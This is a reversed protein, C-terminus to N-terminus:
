WPRTTASSRRGRVSSRPARRRTSPTARAARHPDADAGALTRRDAARHARDCRPAGHGAAPRGARAGAAGAGATATRRRRAVRIRDHVETLRTTSRGEVPDARSALARLDDTNMVPTRREASPELADDLRLKALAKACQSKVTGISCDMLDATERESRDELFRLVVVARQRMPLRGLAGWLDQHDESGGDAVTGTPEPLVETPRERTWRRRWWSAATTVLIRRVYPEPEDIRRWVFWAKTLATQLLDEALSEDHTLLFATRLLAPSRALVFEDFTDREAM